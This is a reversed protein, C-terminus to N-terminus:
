TDWSIVRVNSTSLSLHLPLNNLLLQCITSPSAALLFVTLYVLVLSILFEPSNKYLNRLLHPFGTFFTASPTPSFLTSTVLTGLQLLTQLCANNHTFRSRCSSSAAFGPTLPRLGRMCSWVCSVTYLLLFIRCIFCQVMLLPRILIRVCTEEKETKMFRVWYGRWHWLLRMCFQRAEKCNMRWRWDEHITGLLRKLTVTVDYLVTQDGQLEDEEKLRWPDCGTVEELDCYDWIFSAEECNISEGYSRNWEVVTVM